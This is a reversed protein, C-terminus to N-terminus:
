KKPVKFGTKKEIEALTLREPQMEYPIGALRARIAAEDEETVHSLLIIHVTSGVARAVFNPLCFLGFDGLPVWFYDKNFREYLVDMFPPNAPNPSM